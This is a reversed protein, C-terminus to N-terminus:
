DVLADDLRALVAGGVGAGAHGVLDHAHAIFGLNLKLHPPLSSAASGTLSNDFLWHHRYGFLLDPAVWIAFVAFGIGISAVPMCPRFTLYRRSAVVIVASVLVFRAAYLWQPPLPIVHELAMIGVFALFPATYAITARRNSDM